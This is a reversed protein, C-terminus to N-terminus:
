GNLIRKNNFYQFLPPHVGIPHQGRADPDPNFITITKKKKREPDKSPTLDGTKRVQGPAATAAPEGKKKRYGQVTILDGGTDRNEDLTVFVLDFPEGTDMQKIVASRLITSEMGGFELM